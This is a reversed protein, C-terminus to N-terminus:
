ASQEQLQDLRRTADRHRPDLKLVTRLAEAAEDHCGLEALAVGLTHHASLLQTDLGVAQLALNSASQWDGQDASVQALGALALANDPDAELVRSYASVADSQRDTAAYAQGALVLFPGSDAVDPDARDYIELAEGYSGQSVCLQMMRYAAAPASPSRNLIGRLIQRCEDFRGLRLCCHALEVRCAEELVPTLEAQELLQRWAAAAAPMDNADMLSLARNVELTTQTSRVTAVTDSSPAEVYGLAVLQQLVGAADVPDMEYDPPHMGSAGDVDDWSSIVRPPTADTLVELWPRGDMDAGVPLGLLKLVTPTVDLLSAGRLEEGARIGPGAACVVGQQRHWSTPNDFGNTGSRQAGSHFGHDSVVLVTVDDGAQQLMADLMMDHFRYCGRVVDRYIAADSESVGEMAPPHYPMFHHGVQDIMDFYVAMFEWPENAMLACAAAQVSATRAILTGLQELRRDSDTNIMAANPVFPLLVEADLDRPDVRLNKLLPALSAPHCAEAPLGDAAGCLSEPHLFYDSVVAGRIPEAPHSALWGVVNSALGSQSLINWVAKTTRSTCSVPRVGSGDPLPETFGYVGHKAPRKGTAISTWLLPSLIPQITALNGSAGSEMLRQLAPMEGAALLPRLITWDAADWGILLVKNASRTM